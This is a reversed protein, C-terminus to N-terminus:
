KRTVRLDRSSTHSGLEKKKKKSHIGDCSLTVKRKKSVGEMGVSAEFSSEGSSCALTDKVPMDEEIKPVDGENETQDFDEGKLHSGIDSAEKKDNKQKTYETETEEELSPSDVAMIKSIDDEKKSTKGKESSDAEFEAKAQDENSETTSPDSSSEEGRGSAKVHVLRRVEVSVHKSPSIIAIPRCECLDETTIRGVATAGSRNSLSISRVGSLRASPQLKCKRQLKVYTDMGEEFVRKADGVSDRIKYNQDRQIIAKKKILRGLARKVQIESGAPIQYNDLLYKLISQFSSDYDSDSSRQINSLASIIM